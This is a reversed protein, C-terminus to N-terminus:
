QGSAQQLRQVFAAHEPSAIGQQLVQQVTTTESRVLARADLWLGPFGQSCYVGTEHLGLPEYKSAFVFWDIAQDEVRWVVYERVHNRQYARLKAKLDYDVSSAAVEAVLEPAGVVYGDKSIQVAGGHHPEIILCVDPQPENQMDLRITSNDGILLGPTAFEYMGLWTVFRAHPQGHQVIPVPSPMYVVGEILEAKKVEPMAEYRREFEERTLRDGDKLPPIPPTRPPITGPTSM